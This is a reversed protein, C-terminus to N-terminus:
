GLFLKGSVQGGAMGLGDYPLFHPALRAKAM